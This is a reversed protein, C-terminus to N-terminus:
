HKRTATERRSRSRDPRHRTGASASSPTDGLGSDREPMVGVLKTMLLELKREVDGGEPHARRYESVFRFMTKQLEPSSTMQKALLIVSDYPMSSLWRRPLLRHQHLLDVVLGAVASSYLRVFTPSAWRFIKELIADPITDANLRATTCIRLKVLDNYSNVELLELWTEISVFQSGGHRPVVIEKWYVFEGRTQLWRPWRQALRLGLALATGSLFGVVHAIHDVSDVKEPFLQAASLVLELLLVDLFFFWSTKLNIFGRRSPIWFFYRTRFRFNYVYYTGMLAFIGASAGVHPIYGSVESSLMLSAWLGLSGGLLFICAAVSFPVFTCCLRVGAFVGVLNLLLHALSGHIFNGLILREIDWDAKAPAVRLLPRVSLFGSAEPKLAPRGDPGSVVFSQLSEIYEGDALLLDYVELFAICLILVAALAPVIKPARSRPVEPSMPVLLIM